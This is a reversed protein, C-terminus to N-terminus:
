ETTTLTIDELLCAMGMGTTELLGMTVGHGGPGEARIHPDVAEAAVRDLVSDEVGGVEGLM